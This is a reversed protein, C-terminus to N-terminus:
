RLHKRMILKERTEHYVSFGSKQYMEAPGMFDRAADVSVKEPYAEVFDFGDQAADRCVRALLQSAIGQRQMAPAIVYCFVSKIRVGTGYEETPVDRMFLRWSACLLCDAKTNANCWGVAVGDHYALYGQLIGERVYRGAAERRKVPSSFDKGEYDDSCWCVCYCRHEEIRDDHPTTDFFHLYDEALDPTLKRIEINM